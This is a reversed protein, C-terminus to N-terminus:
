FVSCLLSFALYINSPSKYRNNTLYAASRSRPGRLPGGSLLIRRLYICGYNNLRLWQLLEDLYILHVKALPISIVALLECTIVFNYVDLVSHFSLTYLWNYIGSYSLVITYDSKGSSYAEGISLGFHPDWIGHATPISAIPNKVWVEYNGNWGIHFLNGAVWVFIIGLHAWNSLFIQVNLSSTNDIRLYSEIDHISGIVQFYRDTACRGNRQHSSIFCDSHFGLIRTDLLRTFNLLPFSIEQLPIGRGKCFLDLLLSGWWWLQAYYRTGSCFM